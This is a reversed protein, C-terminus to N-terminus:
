TVLGRLRDGSFLECPWGQVTCGNDVHDGALVLGHELLCADHGVSAGVLLRAGSRLVSRDDVRLPHLEFEGRTNLHCVVSADDAAMRDEFTVLDPETWLIDSNGDAALACDKGVTAGMARYFVPLYATGSILTLIGINGPYQDILQDIALM